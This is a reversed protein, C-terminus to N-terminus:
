LMLCVTIIEIGKTEFLIGVTDIRTFNNWIDKTEFSILVCVIDLIRNNNRQKLLYCYVGFDTIMEFSVGYTESVGQVSVYIYIFAIDTSFTYLCIIKYSICIIHDRLVSLVRCKFSHLYSVVIVCWFKWYSTKREKKILAVLFVTVYLVALIFDFLM